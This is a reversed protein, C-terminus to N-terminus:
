NLHKRKKNLAWYISGLIVGLILAIDLLIKFFERLVQTWLVPIEKENRISEQHILKDHYTIKLKGMETNAEVPAILGEKKNQIEVNLDRLSLGKPIYVNIDHDVKMPFDQANKVPVSDLITRRHVATVKQFDEFARHYAYIADNAPWQFNAKEDHIGVSIFILEQSGKSAWSSLSLGALKTYGAKAGRMQFDGQIVKDAYLLPRNHFEIGDPHNISKSALYNRTGYIKQFTPNNLAYDVLLALDYVTSVHKPHDLGSTNIFHSNKMGIEQAKENMYHSLGEPTKTLYMSLARTADAGSPMMIGYFIDALSRKEYPEFGAVAAIPDLDTFIEEELTYYTNQLDIDELMELATITTLVKTLSAPHIIEHSNKEDLIKFGDRDVLIYANSKIESEKLPVVSEAEVQTKQSILILFTLALVFIKKM